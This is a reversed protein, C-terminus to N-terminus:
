GPATTLGPALTMTEPGVQPPPQSTLHRVSERWRQRPPPPCGGPLGGPSELRSSLLRSLWPGPVTHQSGHARGRKDRQGLPGQRARTPPAAEVLPRLTNWGDAPLPSPQLWAQQLGSGKTKGSPTGCVEPLIKRMSLYVPGSLGEQCTSPAPYTTTILTRPYCSTLPLAPLGPCPQSGPHWTAQTRVLMVAEKHARGVQYSSLPLPHNRFM